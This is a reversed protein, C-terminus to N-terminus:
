GFCHHVGGAVLTALVICSLVLWFAAIDCGLSGRVSRTQWARAGDIAYVAGVVLVIAVIFTELGNNTKTCGSGLWVFWVAGAGTAALVTFFLTFGSRRV